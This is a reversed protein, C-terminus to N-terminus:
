RVGTQLSYRHLAEKDWLKQGYGNGHCHTCYSSISSSIACLIKEKVELSGKRIVEHGVDILKGAVAEPLAM